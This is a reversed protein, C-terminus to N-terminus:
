YVHISQADENTESGSLVQGSPQSSSGSQEIKARHPRRIQFRIVRSSSRGGRSSRICLGSHIYWKVDNESGLLYQM